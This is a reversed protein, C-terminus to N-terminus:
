PAGPAAADLVRRVTLTLEAPTFPKRLFATGQGGAGSRGLREETYGSMYLVRTEPRLDALAKAMEPGSQGPMVVDTLLLHIPGGHEGCIQLGEEASAAALVRYGSRALVSRVLSRVAEEDEVLLVTESIGGTGEEAGLRTAVPEVAGDVWPLFVRVRTGEGPHSTVSIGGGSQRVIGYVMPLGLGTGKGHSKTTFFP